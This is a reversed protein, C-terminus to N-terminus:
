NIFYYCCSRSVDLVSVTSIVLNVAHIGAHAHMSEFAVADRARNPFPAASLESQKARSKTGFVAPWCVSDCVYRVYRPWLANVALKGKFEEAMGLVSM